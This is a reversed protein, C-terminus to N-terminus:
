LCDKVFITVNLVAEIHLKLTTKSLTKFNKLLFALVGLGNIATKKHHVFLDICHKKILEPFINLFYQINM